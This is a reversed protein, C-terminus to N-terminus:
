DVTEVTFSRESLHYTYPFPNQCKAIQDTVFRREVYYSSFVVNNPKNLLTKAMFANIDSGLNRLGSKKKGSEYYACVFDYNNEILSDILKFMDKPDHEGDDDLGVIYDGSVNRYGAILANHQGFNKAFNISIIKTNEQSLKKIIDWTADKSGDNILVVEYDFRGDKTITDVCSNVIKQISKESNYCPIVVSLKM